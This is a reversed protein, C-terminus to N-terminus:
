RGLGEGGDVGRVVGAWADQSDGVEANGDAVDRGGLPDPGGDHPEHRQDVAIFEAHDEFRRGFQGDSDGVLLALVDPGKVLTADTQIVQRQGHGVDRRELAPLPPEGFQVDRM